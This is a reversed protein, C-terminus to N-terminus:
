RLLRDGYAILVWVVLAVVALAVGIDVFHRRRAADVWLEVLAIGAVALGIVGAVVIVVNM